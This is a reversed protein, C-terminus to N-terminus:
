TTSLTSTGPSDDFNVVANFNGITYMNNNKDIYMDVIYEKCNSTLTKVSNFNLTQSFTCCFVTFVLVILINIKM